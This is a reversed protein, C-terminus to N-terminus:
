NGAKRALVWVFPADGEAQKVERVEVEFGAKEVMEVSKEEGWGSWFMWGKEHGLWKEMQLTEITMVLFNALLYGGPKLWAAIKAMLLTQEDRPLHIISYFGTVADFSAPAFDLGLMDGQVLTLRDEYASLHTRALDLQTTSIDNGTVHFVPNPRKLLFKTAPVGAGCGLELVRVTNNDSCSSSQQLKTLLRDLYDLRLTDNPKTFEANYTDAIADYSAKM